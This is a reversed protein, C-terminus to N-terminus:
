ANACCLQKLRLRCALLENLSFAQRRKQKLTQKNTCLGQLSSTTFVTVDATKAASAAATIMKETTDPTFPNIV